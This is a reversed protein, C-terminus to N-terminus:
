SPETIFYAVTSTDTLDSSLITFSTGATRASVSLAAPVTITGLTQATLQIRSSATVSTNNVVVTGLVLTAVGQKCNSGEKISLGKGAVQLAFQGGNTLNAVKTLLTTGLPATFFEIKTGHATSSWNEDTALTIAAQIASYASGDYGVAELRTISTDATLATLATSTGEARKGIFNNQGGFSDLVLRNPTSNAAVFHAIMSTLNGTTATGNLTVMCPADPVAPVAGVAFSGSTVRTHGSSPAFTHAGTWTPVIAQSLAPAGNSRICTTLTGNVATLGITGTPNAVVALTGATPFTVATTGTMTFTTAFAGSTTLAGGLTLNSANAVGTGGNAPPLVGSVHTTLAVKGWAPAVGVGGSILANGTAVGALKSLASTTSAYLIDGIAYSTFGTGGFNAAMATGQWTGATITGVSTLSSTVVNSALTTGTLTGAPAVVASSGAATVLGKANVTFNPIATSSGFSGVDSNVTALTLGITGSFTVPSGTITFDAGTIGVSTVSGSGSGALDAIDQVSVQYSTGDGDDVAVAETGNLGGSRIPLDSIPTDYILPNDGVGDGDVVVLNGGVEITRTTVDDTGTKVVLGNGASNFDQALTVADRVLGWTAPLFTEYESYVGPHQLAPWGPRVDIEDTSTAVGVPIALNIYDPFQTLGSVGVYVPGGPEFVAGAIQMVGAKRVVVNAGEVVTQTAVGLVAYVKVPDGPDVQSVVGDGSPYVATGIAIASGARFTEMEQDAAVLAAVQAALAVLQARLASISINQQGARLTTEGAQAATTTSIAEIAEIRQRINEVAQAVVRLELTRPTSIPPKGLAM